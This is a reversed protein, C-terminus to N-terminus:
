NAHESAPTSAGIVDGGDGAEVYAGSLVLTLHGVGHRRRPLDEDKSLQQQGWEVCECSDLM